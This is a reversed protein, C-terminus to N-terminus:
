PRAQQMEDVLAQLDALETLVEFAFGERRVPRSSLVLERMYAPLDTPTAWLECLRNVIHPHRRATALPQYRPPLGALWAHADASLAQAQPQREPHSSSPALPTSSTM